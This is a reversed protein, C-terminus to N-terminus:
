HVICCLLLELAHLKFSSVTVSKPIGNEDIFIETEEQPESYDEEHTYSETVYDGDPTKYTQQEQSQQYGQEFICRCNHLHIKVFIFLSANTKLVEIIAYRNM